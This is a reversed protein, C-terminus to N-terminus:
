DEFARRGVSHLFSEEELMKEVSTGKRLATSGAILLRGMEHAWEKLNTLAVGESTYADKEYFRPNRHNHDKFAMLLKHTKGDRATAEVVIRGTTLHEVLNGTGPVPSFFSGIAGLWRAASHQPTFSVVALKICLTAGQPKPTITWRCNMEKNITALANTISEQMYEGMKEQLLAAAEPEDTQIRSVDLPAIYVTGRKINRYRSPDGELWFGSASVKASRRLQVDYLGTESQLNTCHSLLCAAALAPLLTRITRM